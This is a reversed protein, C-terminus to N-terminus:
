TLKQWWKRPEEGVAMTIVRVSTFAGYHSIRLRYAAPDVEGLTAKEDSFIAVGGSLDVAVGPPVIIRTEAFGGYIKLDVTSSRVVAERLDLVADSFGQVVTLAPPLEWRGSRRVSSFFGTISPTTGGAAPASPPAPYASPTPQVSTPEVPAPTWGPTDEVPGRLGADPLIPQMRGTDEVPGGAWPQDPRQQGQDPTGTM